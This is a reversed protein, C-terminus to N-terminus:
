SEKTLGIRARRQDHEIYQNNGQTVFNVQQHVSHRGVIKITHTNWRFPGIQTFASDARNAVVAVQFNSGGPLTSVFPLKDPLQGITIKTVPNSGQLLDCRRPKIFKELSKTKFM